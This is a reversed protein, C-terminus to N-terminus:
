IIEGRKKPFEFKFKTGERTKIIEFTGGHAKIVKNIYAGGLGYGISGQRKVGARVYEEKTITFPKGNNSYTIVIKDDFELVKFEVRYKRKLNKADFGHMEANRLLNHVMEEFALRHIQVLVNPSDVVIEYKLPYPMNTDKLRKIDTLLTKLNYTDFDEESLKLQVVKKTENITEEFKTLLNDITQLVSGVTEVPVDFDATDEFDSDVTINDEAPDAMLNRRNIFRNVRKLALHAATINPLINHALISITSEETELSTTEEAIAKLKDRHKLRELEILYERKEFVQPRQVEMPPVLLVLESFARKSIINYSGRRLGKCQKLTMPSYLQYYFYDIDIVEQRPILAILTHHLVISDIGNEGPNFITPKLDQGWLSLIIARENIIIDNLTPNVKKTFQFDIRTDEIQSNLNRATVLPIGTSDEVKTTKTHGKVINAVDYIRIGTGDNLMDISKKFVTDYRYYLLDYENEKIEYTDIFRSIDSEEKFYHYSQEEEQVLGTMKALSGAQKDRLNVIQVKRSRNESKHKNLVLLSLNTSKVGTLNPLYIVMEIVDDNLLNYRWREDRKGSYITDSAVVIVAKGRNNLMMTIREIMDQPGSPRAFDYSLKRNRNWLDNRGHSPLLTVIKDFQQNPISYQEFHEPFDTIDFYVGNILFNMICLARLSTDQYNTQCYNHAEKETVSVLLTGSGLYPDMVEDTRKIDLISRILGKVEDPIRVQNKTVYKDILRGYVVGMVGSLVDERFHFKDLYLVLPVLTTEIPSSRYFYNISERITSNLLESEPVESILKEVYNPVEWKLIHDIRVNDNHSISNRIVHWFNSLNGEGIRIDNFAKLFIFSLIHLSAERESLLQGKVMLLVQNLEKELTDVRHKYEM